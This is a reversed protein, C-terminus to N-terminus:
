KERTERVDFGDAFETTEIEFRKNRGREGAM